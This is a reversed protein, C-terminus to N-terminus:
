RADIRRIYRCTLTFHVHGRFCIIIEALM